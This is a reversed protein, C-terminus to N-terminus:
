YLNYVKSLFFEVLPTQDVNVFKLRHLVKAMRTFDMLLYTVDYEKYLMVSAAICMIIGALFLCLNLLSALNAIINVSNINLKITIFYEWADTFKQVFFLNSNTLNQVVVDRKNAEIFLIEKEDM